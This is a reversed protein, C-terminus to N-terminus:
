VPWLQLPLGLAQVFLLASGLVLAVVVAGAERWPYRRTALCAVALTAVAAIVLGLPRIAAAFVCVALLIWIASRLDWSPWLQGRNRLGRVVIALGLIILLIGLATPFYGPGMRAASGLPYGRAIVAGALGFAIFIVGAWLDRNVLV